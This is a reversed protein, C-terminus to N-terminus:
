SRAYEAVDRIKINKRKEKVPHIQSTRIWMMSSPIIM